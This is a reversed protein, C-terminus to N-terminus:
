ESSGDFQQQEFYEDASSDSEMADVDQWAAAAEMRQNVARQLEDIAFNRANAQVLQWPHAAWLWPAVEFPVYIRKIVFFLQRDADRLCSM